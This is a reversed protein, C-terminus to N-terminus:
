TGSPHLDKHHNRRSKEHTKKNQYIMLGFSIMGALLIIATNVGWILWGLSINKIGYILLVQQVAIPFAGLGGPSIIMALTSLTLVSMAAPIGLHSTIDLTNFGIYIQLLYCGWILVTYILFTIKKQLHFITGLGEKVEDWINKIKYVIPHSSFKKFFLNIGLIAILMVALFVILKMWLPIGQNGSQLIKEMKDSVFGGVVKLQIMITLFIFLLFTVFDFIRETIVTGILRSFHIKEYKGLMTCRLIEGARPVFTNGFYGILTAYFSNSVSVKKIPDILLKWRLARFYHSLLGLIIVPIVYIYHANELSAVFQEKEEATMGSVQWWVLLIGIALFFAYKIVAILKKKM